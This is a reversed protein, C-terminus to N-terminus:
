IKKEADEKNPPMAWTRRTQLYQGTHQRCPANGDEVAAKEGLLCAKPIEWMAKTANRAYGEHYEWYKSRCGGEVFGGNELLAFDM